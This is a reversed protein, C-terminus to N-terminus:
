RAAALFEALLPGATTSGYEGEDVFVAVALDGQIAIMWVHNRLDDEPGFQATGTKAAVPEGPVDQLFAAGGDTVVGRMLERLQAAEQQTLDVLPRVPGADDTPQPTGPTAQERDRAQADDDVVLQPLVTRGAAVSAAVTAMGLPSALVRGQGIMTAAHDTGDSDSPVAGLFSAYGLAAQPLLGLSGAADVVADQPAADRQGIFATNCSNAFATRLPIQGLADAPYDPFNDFRRGDVVVSPECRVDSEPSMGSRLLALASVVKFTSGPAYQGLTATSMGEGGAGSAAALVAGTSPRIAVVASAPVVDRLVDEATQQLDLDLTLRLPEGAVPAIEFLERTASTEQDVAEITLGAVGRLQEDFQRQLGSLGTLDGAAIAGESKEIVEATAPGVTGLVPRAFERTPALPLEGPSALVGDLATLKEVDYSRDGTRVVIAEVFAKEGAAAVREAYADADIELADALARAAAPTREPTIRTKDIGIRLVPRAEVLVEDDAGLVDAREASRRVVALDEGETLDPVLITRDWATAWVDEDDRTVRATTTYTWDETRGTVWTWALEVVASADDDEAPEASEVEVRLADDGLADLVADFAATRQEAAQAPTTGAALAVDSLDGDQLAAALAAAADQPGPPDDDCATLSVTAVLALAMLGGATRANM